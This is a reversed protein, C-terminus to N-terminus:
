LMIIKELYTNQLMYIKKYPILLCGIYRKEKSYSRIRKKYNPDM